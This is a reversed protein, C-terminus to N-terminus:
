SPSFMGLKLIGKGSKYWVITFVNLSAFFHLFHNSISPLCQSIMSKHGLFQVDVVFENSSAEQYTTHVCKLANTMFSVVHKLFPAFLLLSITWDGRQQGDKVFIYVERLGTIWPLQPRHSRHSMNTCSNFFLCSEWINRM